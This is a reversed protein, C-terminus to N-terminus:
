YDNLHEFFVRIVSEASIKNNLHLADCCLTKRKKKHNTIIIADYKLEAYNCKIFSDSPLTDNM